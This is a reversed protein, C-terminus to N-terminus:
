NQTLGFGIYNNYNNINSSDINSKKKAKSLLNIAHNIEEQSIYNDHNTDITKHLTKLNEPLICLNSNENLLWTSIIWYIVTLIISVLIDRTGIFAIFFVLVEKGLNKIITEQNKTLNFDIYKSAINLFIICLGIIIKDNSLYDYFQKLYGLM